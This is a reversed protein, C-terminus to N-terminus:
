VVLWDDAADSTYLLCAGSEDLFFPLPGLYIFDSIFSSFNCSIGCFVFSQLFNSHVFKHLSIQFGLHFPCIELFIYDELVSDLLFLFGLCVLLLQHFLLLNLFNGACLLGPSSLKM